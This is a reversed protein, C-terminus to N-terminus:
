LRGREDLRRAAAEIAARNARVDDRALARVHAESVGLKRCTDRLVRADGATVGHDAHLHLMNAAESGAAVIVAEDLRSRASSFDTWGLGNSKVRSTVGGAGRRRAIVYHGAEHVVNEARLGNGSGYRTPRQGKLYLVAVALVAIVAITKGPAVLLGGCVAAALLTKAM